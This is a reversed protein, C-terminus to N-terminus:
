LKLRDVLSSNYQKKAEPNKIVESFYKPDTKMRNEDYSVEKGGRPTSPEMTKKGTVTNSYTEEIIQQFTKKANKPLLSLEKIVDRNVVDKYEPMDEMVKNFNESFVKEIKEARDKAELPKLKSQIAEDVESKAKSYIVTSIEELFNQDVDYKEAISKLDSKIEAKTAGQEIQKKLDSIEKELGKKENKIELFTKLPVRDDREEKTGLLDEVTKPEEGTSEEEKKPEEVKDEGEVITEKAEEEPTITEKPDM